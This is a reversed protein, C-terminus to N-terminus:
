GVERKYSNIKNITQPILSPLSSSILSCHLIFRGEEGIADALAFDIKLWDDYNATIDMARSEIQRVVMEIDDEVLNIHTQFVADSPNQYLCQQMIPSLM